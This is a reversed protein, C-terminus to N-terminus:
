PMENGTCTYNAVHPSKYTIAWVARHYFSSKVGSTNRRAQALNHIPSVCQSWEFRWLKDSMKLEHLLIFVVFHWKMQIQVFQIYNLCIFIVACGSLYFTSLCEWCYPYCINMFEAYVVCMSCGIWIWAVWFIHYYCAHMIKTCNCESCM